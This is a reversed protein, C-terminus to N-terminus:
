KWLSAINSMLGPYRGHPVSDVIQFEPARTDRVVAVSARYGEATMLRSVQPHAADDGRRVVVGIEDNALRVLTGPPYVGLEKILLTTLAEDVQKGRELFINRLAMRAPIADRYTRPRLMATYIDVIALLRTLPQIDDGRLRHPYGSGDLREHHHLVADLWLPDTIGAAELLRRSAEPHGRVLQLQDTSLGESQSNLQTALPGLAVDYTLAAGTLAAAATTDLALTRAAFVCIIAAHAQRAAHDNPDLQLQMSALAADSDRALADNICAALRAVQKDVDTATGALLRRHLLGVERQLQDMAEFPTPPAPPVPADAQADGAGGAGAGAILCDRELLTELQNENEVIGGRQLLLIGNRDYIACALPKGVQLDGQRLPRMGALNVSTQAM